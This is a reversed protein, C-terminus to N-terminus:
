APADLMLKYRRALAAADGVTLVAQVDGDDIPHGIHSELATILELADLSDLGLDERLDAEPVAEDPDIGLKDVLVERIMQDIGDPM